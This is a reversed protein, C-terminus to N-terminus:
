GLPQYILVSRMSNKTGLTFFWYIEPNHSEHNYIIGPSATNTHSDPPTSFVSYNKQCFLCCLDFTGYIM